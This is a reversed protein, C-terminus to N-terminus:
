SHYEVGQAPGPREPQLNSYGAQAFSGIFQPTIKLAGFEVLSQLSAPRYGLRALEGIYGPTVGVASLEMLKNVTPAPYNSTRLATVLQRKADVAILGFTQEETPRAIGRSALFDNFASDPTLSCTGIAMSDGGNGVCDVRGPERVITFRVPRSGPARLAAVDLGRIEAMRFSSSWSNTHRQDARKFSVQVRDAYRSPEITFHLPQLSSAVCASSVTVGTMLLAAVFALMKTM